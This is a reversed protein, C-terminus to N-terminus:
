EQISSYGYNYGYGYEKGYGYRFKSSAVDQGNLVIYPKKMPKHKSNIAENIEGLLRKDTFDSRVIYLTADVFTNILLSDSVLLYPASDIIVYDYRERLMEILEGQKNFSLIETPNQPVPGSMMVDLTDYVGSNEIAFGIRSCKGTLYGVVNNKPKPRVESFIKQLAPKRLDMGVLIVKRGTHAISLALNSAVYSKGEGFISSTVQIVKTGELYQISSRLMRFSESTNDHGNLPILPYETNKNKPLCALVPTSISEEIDRKTQIKNNFSLRIGVVTPPICFGLVIAILLIMRRDPFVPINSGFASEIIRLEDTAGYM